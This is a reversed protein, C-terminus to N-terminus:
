MHDRLIKNKFLPGLFIPRGKSTPEQAFNSRAHIKKIEEQIKMMKLHSESPIWNVLNDFM